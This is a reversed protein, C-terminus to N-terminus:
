VGAKSLLGQGITPFKIGVFYGVVVAVVIVLWTNGKM